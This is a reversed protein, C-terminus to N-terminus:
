AAATNSSVSPNPSISSSGTCLEKVHHVDPKVPSAFFKQYFLYRTRASMGGRTLTALISQDQVIEGIDEVTLYPKQGPKIRKAKEKLMERIKEGTMAPHNLARWEANNQTFRTLERHGGAGLRAAINDLKFGTIVGAREYQSLWPYKLLRPDREAIHAGTAVAAGALVGHNTLSREGTEFIRDVFDGETESWSQAVNAMVTLVGLLKAGKLAVDRTNFGGWDAASRFRAPHKRPSEFRLGTRLVKSEEPVDARDIEEMFPKGRYEPAKNIQSVVVKAQKGLIILAQLQAAQDHFTPKEINRSRSLQRAGTVGKEYRDQYIKPYMGSDTALRIARFLVDRLHDDNLIDHKKERSASMFRVLMRDTEKHPVLVGGLLYDMQKSVMIQFAPPRVEAEYQLVESHVDQNFERIFDLTERVGIRSWTELMDKFEGVADKFNKVPKYRRMVEVFQKESGNNRATNIVVNGALEIVEEWGDPNMLQLVELQRIVDENNADLVRGIADLPPKAMYDMAELDRGSIISSNKDIKAYSAYRAAIEKKFETLDAQTTEKRSLLWDLRAMVWNEMGTQFVRSKERYATGKFVDSGLVPGFIPVNEREKPYVPDGLAKRDPHLLPGVLPVPTTPIVMGENLDANFYRGNMAKLYDEFYDKVAEKNEPGPIPRNFERLSRSGEVASRLVSLDSRSKEIVRDVTYNFKTELEAGTKMFVIKARRYFDKYRRVSDTVLTTRYGESGGPLLRSTYSQIIRTYPDVGYAEDIKAWHEDHTKLNSDFRTKEFGPEKNKNEPSRGIQVEAQERGGAMYVLRPDDKKRHQSFRFTM